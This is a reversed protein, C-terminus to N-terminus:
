ARGMGRKIWKYGLFLLSVGIFGILMTSTNTTAGTIDVATFLADM